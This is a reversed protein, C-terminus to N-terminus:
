SPTCDGMCAELWSALLLIRFYSPAGGGSDLTTISQFIPFLCTPIFPTTLFIVLSPVWAARVCPNGPDAPNSICCCMLCVGATVSRAPLLFLSM